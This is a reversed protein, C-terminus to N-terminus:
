QEQVTFFDCFGICENEVIIKLSVIQRIAFFCQCSHRQAYIINICPSVVQTDTAVCIVKAQAEARPGDYAPLINGTM